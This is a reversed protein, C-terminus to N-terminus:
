EYYEHKLFDAVSFGFMGFVDGSILKVNSSRCIKDLKLVLDTKVATTVIITFSKYFEVDKEAPNQPDPTLKVLPNLAQAKPIVAEALQFFVYISIRKNDDM